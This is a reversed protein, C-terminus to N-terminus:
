SEPPSGADVQGADAWKRYFAAVEEDSAFDGAAAERLGAEIESVQWAELEVYRRIADAALWSKSRATAAALRELREKLEAPLRVTLTASDGMSGSYVDAYATADLAERREDGHALLGPGRGVRRAVDYRWAGSEADTVTITTSGGTTRYTNHLAGGPRGVSVVLECGAGAPDISSSGFVNGTWGLM